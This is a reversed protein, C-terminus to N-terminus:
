QTLSVLSDVNLCATRSVGGSGQDTVDLIIGEDTVNVMLDSMGDDDEVADHFSLRVGGSSVWTVGDDLSLLLGTLQTPQDDPEALLAEAQQVAAQQEPLSVNDAADYTGDEVGTQIDDVQAQALGVLTALLAHSIRYNRNSQM